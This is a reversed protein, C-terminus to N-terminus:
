GEVLLVKDRVVGHHSAELRRPHPPMPCQTAEKAVKGAVIRGLQSGVTTDRHTPDCVRTRNGTAGAKPVM